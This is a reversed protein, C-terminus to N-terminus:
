DENNKKNWELLCDACVWETKILCIAAEEKGCKDCNPKKRFM